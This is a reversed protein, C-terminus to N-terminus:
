SRAIKAVMQAAAMFGFTGTVFAATGYGSECDLRLTSDAEKVGCVTGDKHPYVMPEPSYVCDVHFLAKPDSPFGHEKRLRKRLEQLLPDHTTQALDKVLIGSPSQRGGAGGTTVVPIGKARAHSILLAKNPLNDIADIVGDFPSSLIQGATAPTFFDVMARVECEPNIAQCRAAMVEAKPRGVNPTTAHLQRNINSVCVEDLDVLTLAGVGSRALAEVAWSGVGGIGVVCVHARRLRELGAASYLRGIGSFRAEYDSM